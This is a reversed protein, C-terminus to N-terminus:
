DSYGRPTPESKKAKGYFVYASMLVGVVIVALQFGRSMLPWAPEKALMSIWDQYSIGAITMVVGAITTVPQSQIARWLFRLFGVMATQAGSVKVTITARRM